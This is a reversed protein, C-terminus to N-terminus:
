SPFLPAVISLSLGSDQTIIAILKSNRNPVIEPTESVDLDQSPKVPSSRDMQWAPVAIPAPIPTPIIIKKQNNISM